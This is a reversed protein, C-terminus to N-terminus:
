SKRRGSAEGCFSLYQFFNRPYILKINRENAFPPLACFTSTDYKCLDFSRPFHPSFFRGLFIENLTGQIEGKHFAWSVKSDYELVSRAKKEM